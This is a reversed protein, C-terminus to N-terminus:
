IGKHRASVGLEISNPLRRKNNRFAIVRQSIDGMPMHGVEQFSILTCHYQIPPIPPSRLTGASRHLDEHGRRTFYWQNISFPEHVHQMDDGM